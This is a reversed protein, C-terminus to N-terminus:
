VEQPTPAARAADRAENLIIKFSAISDQFFTFVDSWGYPHTIDEYVEGKTPIDMFDSYINNMIIASKNSTFNILCGNVLDEKSNIDSLLLRNITSLEILFEKISIISGTEEIEKLLLQKFEMTQTYTLNISNFKPPFNFNPNEQVIPISRAQELLQLIRSNM